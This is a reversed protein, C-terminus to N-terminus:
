VGDAFQSVNWTLAPDWPNPCKRLKADMRQVKKDRSNLILDWDIGHLQATQELCCLVDAIEDSVSSVPARGREVQSVAALLEGCEESLVMLVAARGWQRVAHAYIGKRALRDPGGPARTGHSM